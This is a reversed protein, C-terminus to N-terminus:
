SRRQNIGNKIIGELNIQKVCTPTVYIFKVQEDRHTVYYRMFQTIAREYANIHNTSKIEYYHTINGKRAIVDCEGCLRYRKYEMHKKISDYRGIFKLREYIDDVINDHRIDSDTKM